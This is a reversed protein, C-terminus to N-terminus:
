TPTSVSSVTLTVTSGTYGVTLDYTAGNFTAELVAGNGANAFAGNIRGAQVVTFQQGLNPSFGLTPTLTGNLTATGDVGPQDEQSRGPLGDGAVTLASGPQFSTTGSVSLKSPGGGASPLITGGGNVTLSGLTGGGGLTAGSEVTAQGPIVGGDIMTGSQV